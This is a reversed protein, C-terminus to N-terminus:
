ARQGGEEKMLSMWDTERPVWGLAALKDARTREGCGWMIHGFPHIEKAVEIPVSEVEGLGLRESIAKAREIMSLDGASVFYYGDKNVGLQERSKSGRMLAQEMLFVVASGLDGISIWSWTATGEGIVFARGRRKVAAYYFGSNSEKKLHGKGRGWLQAPSVLITGVGKSISHTIIEQDAM